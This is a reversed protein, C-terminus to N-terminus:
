VKGGMYVKVIEVRSHGIEKTVFTAAQEFNFGKAMEQAVRDQVYGYRLGHFTLENSKGEYMRQERGEATTVGERHRELLKECRGVAQHVKEGERVFLLGGREIQATKVALVARAEDSLPVARHLGNKAEGKVQYVGTRLAQEAQSRKMAVAETIRLGMTRCIPLICKMDSATAGLHGTQRSLDDLKALMGEYEQKTWSRDGKVAPTKDLFVGYDKALTANDALEYKANDIMDHLYRIAGLDSKITKPSIGQAQRHQIYAVIHKDQLNRLNQMKFKENIFDAFKVCSQKYRARTGYSGSRAHRFKAELQNHISSAGKGKAM